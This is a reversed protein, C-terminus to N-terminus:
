CVPLSSLHNLFNAFSDQRYRGAQVMGDANIFKGTQPDYYRSGLYYLGIESDYYYGRYRFPNIKAISTASTIEAGAANKISIINGWADYYYHATIQSLYNVGGKKM